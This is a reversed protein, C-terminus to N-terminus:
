VKKRRESCQGDVDVNVNSMLYHNKIFQFCKIGPNELILSNSDSSDENLLFAKYFEVHIEDPDAAKYNPM